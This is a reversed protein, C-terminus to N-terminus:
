KGNEKQEAQKETEPKAADSAAEAAAPEAKAARGFDRVELIFNVQIPADLEPDVVLPDVKM